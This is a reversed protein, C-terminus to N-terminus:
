EELRQLLRIKGELEQLKKDQSILYLTLEEVKKLLIANMEGLSLGNNEVEEATPMEPLHKNITIYQELEPLTPLAYGEGFVYDPWNGKLEVVLEETITKGNVALRYGHTNDTGIGVNGNNKMFIQYANFSGTNNSATELVLNAGSASNSGVNISKIRSVSVANGQNSHAFDLININGAATGTDFLRLSINEFTSGGGEFLVWPTTSPTSFASVQLNATPAVSGIGVKGYMSIIDFDSHWNLTPDWDRNIYLINNPGNQTNYSGIAAKQNLRYRLDYNFGNDGLNFDGVVNDQGYSSLSMVSLLVSVLMTKTSIKM